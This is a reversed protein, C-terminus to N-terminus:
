TSKRDLEGPCGPLLDMRVPCRDRSATAAGSFKCPCFCRHVGFGEIQLFNTFRQFAGFLPVVPLTQYPQTGPLPMLWFAALPIVSFHNLLGPFGVPLDHFEEDQHPSAVM